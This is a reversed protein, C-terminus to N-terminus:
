LLASNVVVLAAVSSSSLLSLLLADDKIFFIDNLVFFGEWVPWIAFIKASVTIRPPSTIQKCPV